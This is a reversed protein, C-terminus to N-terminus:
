SKARRRSRRILVVVLVIFALPVLICAACVSGIIIWVNTWFANLKSEVFDAHLKDGEIRVDYTLDYVNGLGGDKGEGKLPASQLGGAPPTKLWNPGPKEPVAIAQGRPVAILYIDSHRTGQGDMRTLTGSSLKTLYFGVSVPDKQGPLGREGREYKLYFDYKPFKDLNRFQFGLDLNPVHPGV